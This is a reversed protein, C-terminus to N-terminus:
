CRTTPPACGCGIAASEPPPLPCGKEGVLLPSPAEVLSPESDSLRRLDEDSWDSGPKKGDVEGPMTPKRFEPAFEFPIVGFAPPPNKMPPMTGMSYYSTRFPLNAHRFMWISCCLSSACFSSFSILVLSSWIYSISVTNWYRILAYSFVACMSLLSISSLLYCAAFSSLAFSSAMCLFAM